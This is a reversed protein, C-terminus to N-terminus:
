LASLVDKNTCWFLASLLVDFPRCGQVSLCVSVWLCKFRFVASKQYIYIWDDTRDICNPQLYLGEKLSGHADISSLSFSPVCRFGAQAKQGRTLHLEWTHTDKM